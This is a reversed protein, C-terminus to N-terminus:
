APSPPGVFEPSGEAAPASGGGGGGAANASATAVNNLADALAQIQGAAMRVDGLKAIAAGVSAIKGAADGAAKDLGAFKINIEGFDAKAMKAASETFGTALGAVATKAADTPTAGKSIEVAYLGAATGVAAFKEPTLSLSDRLAAQANKSTDAAAVEKAASADVVGMMEAYAAQKAASYEEESLQMANLKQMKADFSAIADSAEKRASETSKKQAAEISAYSTIAAKAYSETALKRAGIAESALKHAAQEAATMNQLATGAKENAAIQAEIADAYKASFDVIGDAAFAATLKVKFADAAVGATATDTVMKKQADSFADLGEAAMQLAGPLDKFAIGLKAAEDVLARISTANAKTVSEWSDGAKVAMMLALSLAASKNGFAIIDDTSGKFSVGLEKARGAADQAAKGLEQHGRLTKNVPGDLARLMDGEAEGGTVFNVTADIAKALYNGHEELWTNIKGGAELGASFAAFVGVAKFGLDAMKQGAPGATDKLKGLMGELSGASGAVSEMGQAALKGKTALDGAADKLKGVKAAAKDIDAQAKVLSASFAPGLDKGERAAQKAENKLKDLAVQALVANRAIARPSDGAAELAKMAAQSEKAAVELDTLGQSGKAGADKVATGAEAAGTEIKKLNEDVGGSDLTATLNLDPM